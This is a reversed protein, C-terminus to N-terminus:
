SRFIRVTMTEHRMAAIDAGWAAGALDEPGADVARAAASLLAPQLGVLMAQGAVPGLPLFRVATSILAAAQAQLYFGIIEAAPLPMDRCAHGVAVPLAALTPPEGTLAAVNAAFARGQEVTEALRQACPCAARALDDLAALDAGRRLALSLLVGDCWGAGHDLWDALWRPLDARTVAGRDMAWELGQSWAFGGTPFAPSLYQALRLRAAEPTLIATGMDMAMGMITGM